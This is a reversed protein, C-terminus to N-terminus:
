THPFPGAVPFLTLWAFLLVRRLHSGFRWVTFITSSLPVRRRTRTHVRQIEDPLTVFAGAITTLSYAGVSVPKRPRSSQPLSRRRRLETRTVELLESIVVSHDKAQSYGDDCPNARDRHLRAHLGNEMRYCRDAITRSKEYGRM